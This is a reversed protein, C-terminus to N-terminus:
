AAHRLRRVVMLMFLLGVALVSAGIAGLGTEPVGTKGPRPTPTAQSGEAPRPTATDAAAVAAPTGAEAAEAPTAEATGESPPTTAEPTPVATPRPTDTPEPTHTPAPTDAPEEPVPTDTAVDELSVTGTLVGAAAMRAENTAAIDHNEAVRDAAMRPNIVFAWVAFICIAVVLLGGLSGVLIMFTRNSGEEEVAEGEEDEYLEEEEAYLGYDEV